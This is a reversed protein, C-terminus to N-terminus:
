GLDGDVTQAAGGGSVVADGFADRRCDAQEVSRERQLLHEEGDAAEELQEGALPREDHDPLVQVPRLRRQEVEDVPERARSSAGSATSDNIPASSPVLRSAATRPRMM